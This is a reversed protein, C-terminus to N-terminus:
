GPEDVGGNRFTDILLCAVGVNIASDAVNFVWPFFSIAVDIFDIVYGLLLRDILNGAAGGIIFAIGVAPLVRRVKTLWSILFGVILIAFISLVIRSIVGGEAGMGFSAGYNRVYTFDVFPSLEIHRLEPLRLVKVIWVKSAQDALAVVLAGLMAQAFLSNGRADAIMDSLRDAISPPSPQKDEGSQESM